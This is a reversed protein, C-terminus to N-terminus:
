DHVSRLLKNIQKKLIVLPIKWRENQIKKLVANRCQDFLPDNEITLAKEIVELGFGYQKELLAFIFLMLLKRKGTLEPNRLYVIEVWCPSRRLLRHGTFSNLSIKESSIRQAGKVALDSVWFGNKELEIPVSYFKDEGKYADIIGPEFEAASITEKISDPLSKFIRLDTGQTDAKFWDIYTLDCKTLAEAITMAPLEIKKDTEFLSHFQWTKLAELDPQLTSSCFPSKTLYFDTTPVSEAAVIRNFKFLKEYGSNKQETINFERTDPDFALCISYSAIRKWKPNIEGSAGIDILVPPQELFIPSRLITDIIKM